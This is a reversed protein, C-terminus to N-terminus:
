DCPPLIATLKEAAYGAALKHALENPHQDSSHVWLDETVQGQFVDFLDYAFFGAEEALDIVLRHVEALPYRGAELRYLLPHVFLAIPIQNELALEAMDRLDDKLGDVMATWEDEPGTYVRLYMRVLVYGRLQADLRRGVFRALASFRALFPFFIAYDDNGLFRMTGMRGERRKGINEVDNLFYWVVVVDPRYALVRNRLLWAYQHASYAPVSFNYVEVPCGIEQSLLTEILSAATDSEKVGEGFGLSDGLLAIRLTSPEKRLDLEAGRYGAANIRYSLKSEDDFYGRENSSYQHDWVNSPVMEFALDESTSPQMSTGVRRRESSSAASDHGSLRLSLELVGVVVVMSAVSLLVRFLTERVKEGSLAVVWWAFCLPLVYVLSASLFTLPHLGCNHYLPPPVSSLLWVPILVILVLLLFSVPDGTRGPCLRRRLLLACLAILITAAIHALFQTV